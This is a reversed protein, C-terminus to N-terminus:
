GASHTSAAAKDGLICFEKFTLALMAAATSVLPESATRCHNLLFNAASNSYRFDGLSGIERSKFEVELNPHPALSRYAGFVSRDRRVNQGAVGKVV